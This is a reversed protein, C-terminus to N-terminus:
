RTASFVTNIRQAQAENMACCGTFGLECAQALHREFGAEDDLAVWPMDFSFVRSTKAATAVAVRADLDASGALAARSASADSAPVLIYSCLSATM